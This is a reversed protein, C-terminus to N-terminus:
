QISRDLTYEGHRIKEPLKAMLDAAAEEGFDRVLTAIAAFLAAHAISERDLGDQEASNWADALYELALRREDHSKENQEDINAFLFM